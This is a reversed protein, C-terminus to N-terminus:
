QPQSPPDEDPLSTARLVRDPAKQVMAGLQRFGFFLGAGIILRFLSALGPENGLENLYQFLRGESEVHVVSRILYSLASPLSGVMFFLGIVRFLSAALDSSDSRAQQPSAEPVFVSAFKGASVWLLLTLIGTTILPVILYIFPGPGERMYSATQGLAWATSVAWSFMVFCYVALIRCALFGIQYPTM